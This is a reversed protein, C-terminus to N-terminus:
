HSYHLISQTVTHWDVTEMAPCIRLHSEIPNNSDVMIPLLENLVSYLFDSEFSWTFDWGLSIELRKPERALQKALFCMWTCYEIVLECDVCQFEIYFRERRRWDSWCCSFFCLVDVFFLYVLGLYLHCVHCCSHPTCFLVYYSLSDPLLVFWSVTLVFMLTFVVDDISSCSLTLVSGLVRTLTWTCQVHQHMTVEAYVKMHARMTRHRISEPQYQTCLLVLCFRCSFTCPRLVLLRHMHLACQLFAAVAGCPALCETSHCNTM